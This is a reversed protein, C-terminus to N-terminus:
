MVCVACYYSVKRFLFLAMALLFPTLMGSPCPYGAQAPKKIKHIAKFDKLPLTLIPKTVSEKPNKKKPRNDGPKVPKQIAYSVVSRNVIVSQFSNM